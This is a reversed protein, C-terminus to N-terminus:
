SYLFRTTFAPFIRSLERLVTVPSRTPLGHFRLEMVLLLYTNIGNDMADLVARPHMCSVKKDVPVTPLVAPDHLQGSV